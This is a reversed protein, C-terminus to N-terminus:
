KKGSNNNRKHLFPNKSATITKNQFNIWWLKIKATKIPTHLYSMTVKSQIAMIALSTSHTKIHKNVMQRDEKYFIQEHRKSNNLHWTMDKHSRPSYGALSRQGHSKEPLFVPTSQCKQRLYVMNQRKGMKLDIKKQINSFKSLKLFIRSILGKNSM